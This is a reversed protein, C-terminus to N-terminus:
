EAFCEPVEVVTRVIFHAGAANLKIAAHACLTEVQSDSLQSLEAETKGVCNGSLTVVSPGAVQVADQKSESLHIM